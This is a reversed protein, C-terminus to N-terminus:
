ICMFSDQHFMQQWNQLTLEWVRSCLERLAWWIGAGKMGSLRLPVGLGCHWARLALNWCSTAAKLFGLLDTSRSIPPRQDERGVVAAIRGVGKDMAFGSKKQAVLLSSNTFYVCVEAQLLQQSLQTNQSLLSGFNALSKPSFSLYNFPSTKWSAEALKSVLYKNTTCVNSINAGQILNTGIQM